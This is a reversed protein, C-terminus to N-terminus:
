IFFWNKKSHNGERIQIRTTTELAGAPIDLITGHLPSKHNSVKLRGGKPGIMASAWPQKDHEFDDLIKDASYDKSGYNQQTM